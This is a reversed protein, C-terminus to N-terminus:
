LKPNRASVIAKTADQARLLAAKARKAVADLDAKLFNVHEDIEEATMLHPSVLPVNDDGSFFHDLVIAVHPDFPLEDGENMKTVQYDFQRITKSM